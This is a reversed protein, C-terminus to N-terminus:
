AAAEPTGSTQGSLNDKGVTQQPLYRVVIGLVFLGLAVKSAYPLLGKLDQPISGWADKVYETLAMLTAGLANVRVSWYQHAKRWEPILGDTFKSM